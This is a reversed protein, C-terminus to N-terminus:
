LNICNKAVPATSNYLRLHSGISLVLIASESGLTALARNLSTSVHRCSFLTGSGGLATTFYPKAGRLASRRRGRLVTGHGRGGEDFLVKGLFLAILPRCSAFSCLSVYFMVGAVHFSLPIITYTNQNNCGQPRGGESTSKYWFYKRLSPPRIM